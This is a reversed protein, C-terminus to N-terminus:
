PIEAPVVKVGLQPTGEYIFRDQDSFIAYRCADRSDKLSFAYRLGDVHFQL